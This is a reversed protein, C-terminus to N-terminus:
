NQYLPDIPKIIIPKRFCSGKSQFNKKEKEKKEHDEEDMTSESFAGSIKRKIEEILFFQELFNRKEFQIQPSLNINRNENSILPTQDSKNSNALTTIERGGQTAIVEIIKNPQTSSIVSLRCRKVEGSNNETKPKRIKKRYLHLITKASSYNM